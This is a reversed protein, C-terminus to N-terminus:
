LVDLTEGNWEARVIALLAEFEEHCDPCCRLHEEVAPLIERLNAGRMVLEVLCDFQNECTECNVGTDEHNDFIAQILRQLKEDRTDM